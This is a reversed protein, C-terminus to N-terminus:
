QDVYLKCTYTPDALYRKKLFHKFFVVSYKRLNRIKNSLVLRATLLPFDNWEFPMCCGVRDIWNKFVNDITNLQIEGIAEGINDKLNDTTDPKDEVAGWLYYGLLTLDWSRPPWVVDARCSIIRDEFVFRLVDLTGEATSVM